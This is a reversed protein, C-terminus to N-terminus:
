GKRPDRQLDSFFSTDWLTLNVCNTKGYLVERKESRLKASSQNGVVKREEQERRGTNREKGEVGTVGRLLSGGQFM